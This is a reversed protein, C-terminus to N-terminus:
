VVRDEVRVKMDAGVAPLRKGAVGDFRNPGREFVSVPRGAPSVQISMSDRGAEDHRRVQLALLGIPRRLGGLGLSLDGAQCWLLRLGGLRLTLKLGSFVGPDLSEYGGKETSGFDRSGRLDHLRLM